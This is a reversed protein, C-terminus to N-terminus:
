FLRNVAGELTLLKEKIDLGMGFGTLSRDAGIVRHCPVIIALPNRHNAGGVARCAKPSGVAEAIQAYTRTEGYPIDRLANWVKLQFATGPLSPSVAIDDFSKRHGAFYEELAALCRKLIDSHEEQLDEPKTNSIALMGKDDAVLYLVGVPSRYPLYVKRTM